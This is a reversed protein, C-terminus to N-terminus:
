AGYWLQYVLVEFETEDSLMDNWAIVEHLRERANIDCMKSFFKTDAFLKGGCGVFADIQDEIYKILLTSGLVTGLPFGSIITRITTKQRQLVVAQDSDRLSQKLWEFM